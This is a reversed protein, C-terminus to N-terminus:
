DDVEEVKEQGVLGFKQPKNNDKLLLEFGYWVLESMSCGLENSVKRVKKYLERKSDKVSVILRSVDNENGVKAM